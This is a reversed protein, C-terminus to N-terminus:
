TPLEGVRRPYPPLDPSWVSPTGKSAHAAIFADIALIGTAGTRLSDAILGGIQVTLGGRVLQRTGQPLKCRGSNNCAAWLQCALQAAADRASQPPDLGYTYDIAFTGEETDDLDLIQCGPWTLRVNPETPDRMRVLRGHPDLRYESPDLAVGDIRVEDIERVHGALQIESLPSCGCSRGGCQWRGAAPDWGWGSVGRSAVLAWCGCADACPRVTIPGCEGTYVGGSLEHMVEGAVEAYDELEATDTGGTFASCCDAVQDATVWPECPASM